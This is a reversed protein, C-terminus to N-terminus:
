ETELRAPRPVLNANMLPMSLARPADKGHRKRLM